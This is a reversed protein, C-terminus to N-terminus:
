TFTQIKSASATNSIDSHLQGQSIYNCLTLTIGPGPGDQRQPDTGAQSSDSGSLGVRYASSGPEGERELDVQTTLVCEPGQWHM